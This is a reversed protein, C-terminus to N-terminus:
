AAEELAVSECGEIHSVVDAGFVDVAWERNHYTTVGMEEVTVGELRANTEHYRRDQEDHGFDCDTSFYGTVEVEDSLLPDNLDLWNDYLDCTHDADTWSPKTIRKAQM